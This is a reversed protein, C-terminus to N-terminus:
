FYTFMDTLVGFVVSFIFPHSLKLIHDIQNAEM